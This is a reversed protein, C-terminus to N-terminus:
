IQSLLLVIITNMLRNKVLLPIWLSNSSLVIIVMFLVTGICIGISIMVKKIM